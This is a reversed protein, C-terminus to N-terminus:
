LPYQEAPTHPYPAEDIVAPVHPATHVGPVVRVLYLEEDTAHPVAHALSVCVHLAYPVPHDPDYVPVDHM